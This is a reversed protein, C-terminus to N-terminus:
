AKVVGIIQSDYGWVSVPGDAADVLTGGFGPRGNKIDSSKEDVLVTRTGGGFPSYQIVSGENYNM